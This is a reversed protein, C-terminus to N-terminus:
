RGGTPACGIARVRVGVVGLVPARREVTACVVSGRGAVTVSAGPAIAAALGRDDPDDRGAARAIGAAAAQLRIQLGAAAAVGLALSVVVLVAPLAVAFEVTVSGRESDRNM